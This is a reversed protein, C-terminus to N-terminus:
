SHKGNKSASGTRMRAALTEAHRLQTELREATQRLARASARLERLEAEPSNSDESEDHRASVRSEEAILQVYSKLFVQGKWCELHACRETGIVWV